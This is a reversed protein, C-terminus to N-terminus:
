LVTCVKMLHYKINELRRCHLRSDEPSNRRTAEYFKVSTESTRAADMMLTVARFLLNNRQFAAVL